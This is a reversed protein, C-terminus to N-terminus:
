QIAPLLYREIIKFLKSKSAYNGSTFVVVMNLDPFVMITQGGWGNARFMKVPKGYHDLQTIWWTYGYANKGSDEIPVTINRNNHYVESSKVIWDEPLVKMGDWIGNNLYTIGFKLMDRPTVYMSGDTAFVGNEYQYWSVSDIGLPQFLYERSFEDIDKGSANKLIEGLVVIGGGNYTFVEGPQHILDRELVCKIPDESCEFYLRDIDNASTGHPAGWEDWALGSTMTLLHEITINEKGGNRYKQHEPLYDFISQHVDKIYGKEVAIGIFASAFSETCSMIPHMMERDWHLPEGYYDPADWQYRHGMFYEELVLMGDKYILMSHVENFKGCRIMRVGEAITSTDANVQTLSGTELGDNIKVPPSYSYEPICNSCGAFFLSVIFVLLPTLKHNM